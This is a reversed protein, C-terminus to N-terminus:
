FNAEETSTWTGDLPISVPAGEQPVTVNINTLVNRKFYMKKSGLVVIDGGTTEWKLTLDVASEGLTEIWYFDDATYIFRTGTEDPRLEKTPMWGNFDAILRGSHFGSANFKIGFVLRRMTPNIVSPVGATTLNVQGWYSDVESHVTSTYTSLDLPNFIPIHPLSGAGGFFPGSSSEMKNTLTVMFRHPFYQRGNDDWIYFLGEGSGRKFASVAVTVPRTAPIPVFISDARNFTGKYVSENNVGVEVIYITSDVLSRAYQDQGKVLRGLPSEHVSWDGGLKLQVLEAEGGSVPPTTPPAGDNSKKCSFLIAPVCALLFLTLRM